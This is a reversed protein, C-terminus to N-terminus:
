TFSSCLFLTSCRGRREFEKVLLVKEMKKANKERDRKKQEMLGNMFSILGAVQHSEEISGQDGDQPLVM